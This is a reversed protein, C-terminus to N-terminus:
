GQKAHSRAHVRDRLPLFPDPRTPANDMCFLFRAMLFQGPPMFQLLPSTASLPRAVYAELANAPPPQIPAAVPAAVAVPMPVPAPAAAPLAPSRYHELQQQQSQQLQQPQQQVPRHALPSPAWQFPQRQPPQAAAPRLSPSPHHQLASAGAVSAAPVPAPATPPASAPRAAM